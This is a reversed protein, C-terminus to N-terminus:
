RLLEIEGKLGSFRCPIVNGGISVCNNSEDREKIAETADIMFETGEDTKDLGVIRVPLKTGPPVQRNDIYPLAGVLVSHNWEPKRYWGESWALYLRETPADRKGLNCIDIRTNEVDVKCITLDPLQSEYSPLLAFIKQIADTFQSLAIVSVGFVILVAVLPRNKLWALYRDVLSKQLAEGSDNRTANLLDSDHQEDRVENEDM